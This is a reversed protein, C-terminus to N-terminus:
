RRIANLLSIVLVGGVVAAGIKLYLGLKQQFDSTPNTLSDKISDTFGKAAASWPSSYGIVKLDVLRVYWRAHLDYVSGLFEQQSEPLDKLARTREGNWDNFKRGFETALPGPVGSRLLDPRGPPVNGVVAMESELKQLVQHADVLQDFTM